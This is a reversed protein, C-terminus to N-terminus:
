GWGGLLLDLLEDLGVLGLEGGVGLQAVLEIAETVLAVAVGALEVPVAIPVGGFCCGFGAVFGNEGEAEEAVEVFIEAAGVASEEAEGEVGVTGQALVEGIAVDEVPLADAGDGGDGYVEAVTAADLASEGAVADVVDGGGVAGRDVGEGSKVAGGGKEGVELFGFGEELGVLSAGGGIAGGEELLVVAITEGGEGLFPGGVEGRDTDFRGRDIGPWDPGAGGGACYVCSAEGETFGLGFAAEDEAQAADGVGGLGEGLQAIAGGPGAEALAVGGGKVGVAAAQKKAFQTAGAGEVGGKAGEFGGQRDVADAVFIEEM